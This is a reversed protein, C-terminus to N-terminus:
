VYDRFRLCVRFGRLCCIFFRQVVSMVFEAVGGGKFTDFTGLSCESYPVNLRKGVEGGLGLFRFGVGKRSSM